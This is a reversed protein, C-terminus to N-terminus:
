NLLYNNIHIANVRSVVLLLFQRLDCFERHMQKEKMFEATFREFVIDINM